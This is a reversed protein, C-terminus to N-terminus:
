MHPWIQEFGAHRGQRIDSWINQMATSGKIKDWHSLFFAVEVQAADASTRIAQVGCREGKQSGRVNCQLELVNRLSHKRGDIALCHACFSAPSPCALRIEAFSLIVILEVTHDAVKHRSVDALRYIAKASCPEPVKLAEGGASVREVRWTRIWARRERISENTAPRTTGGALASDSEQSAGEPMFTSTLPAFVISDTYLYYLLAQWTRYAADRVVVQTKKPGLALDHMDRTPSEDDSLAEEEMDSDDALDDDDVSSHADFADGAIIGSGESFGGEFMAEFYESRKLLRKNALIRRHGRSPPHTAAPPQAATHGPSDTSTTAINITPPAKTARRSPLVFEVDSYLPDDFLAGVADVLARPVREVPLDM